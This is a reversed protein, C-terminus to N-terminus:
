VPFNFIYHPQLVRCGISQVWLDLLGKFVVISELTWCPDSYNASMQQGSPTSSARINHYESLTKLFTFECVNNKIFISLYM